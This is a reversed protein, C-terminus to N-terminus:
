IYFQILYLVMGCTSMLIPTDITHPAVAEAYAMTPPLILMAAVVQNFNDFDAYQMAPLAMATLFICASGEWSRVYLRASFCGHTEYKHQGYRIGIPEALGDGIATIFIILYVLDSEILCQFFIILLMGPAINGAVIWKLTHPRDEPRDFSNFQLMLFKSSERFPKILLLFCLLIYFDGWALALLSNDYSNFLLPVTFAAFHQLKRTYNVKFTSAKNTIIYGKTNVACCSRCILGGVLSVLMMICVQPIQWMWFWPMVLYMPELWVTLSLLVILYALMVLFFVFDFSRRWSRAYDGAVDGEQCLYMSSSTSGYSPLSVALPLSFTPKSSQTKWICRLLTIIILFSLSPLLILVLQQETSLMDSWVITENVMPSM